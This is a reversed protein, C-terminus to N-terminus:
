LCLACSSHVSEIPDPPCNNWVVRPCTSDIQIRHANSPSLFNHLSQLLAADVHLDCCYRATLWDERLLLDIFGVFFLSLDYIGRQGHIEREGTWRRGDSQIKKKHYWKRGGSFVVSKDYNDRKRQTTTLIHGSELYRHKWTDFNLKRQNTHVTDRPHGNLWQGAVLFDHTYINQSGQGYILVTILSDSVRM